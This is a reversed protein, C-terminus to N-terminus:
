EHLFTVNLNSVYLCENKQDYVVSETAFFIDDTEWIKVLKKEKQAVFSLHIISIFILVITSTKKM